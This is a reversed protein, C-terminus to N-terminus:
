TQNDKKRSANYKYKAIFILGTGAIMLIINGWVYGKGYETLVSYDGAYRILGNIALLLMLGGSIYLAYKM